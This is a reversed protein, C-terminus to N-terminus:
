LGLWAMVRRWWPVPHFERNHADLEAETLPAPDTEYHPWRTGTRYRGQQDCGDPIYPRRRPAALPVPRSSYVAMGYRAAAIDDRWQAPQTEHEDSEMASLQARCITSHTEVISGYLPKFDAWATEQPQLPLVIM